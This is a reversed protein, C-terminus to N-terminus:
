TALKKNKYKIAKSGWAFCYNYLLLKNKVALLFEKSPNQCGVFDTIDISKTNGYIDEYAFTNIKNILMDPLESTASTVENNYPHSPEIITTKEQSIAISDPEWEM